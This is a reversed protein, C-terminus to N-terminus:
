GLGRWFLWAGLGATAALFVVLALWWKRYNALERDLGTTKGLQQAELDELIARAERLHPDLSMRFSLYVILVTAVNTGVFVLPKNIAYHGDTGDIFSNLAFSFAATSFAMLWLWVTTNTRYFSLRQRLGVKLSEDRRDLRRVEGHMHVGFAAFGLAALVLGGEVVLMTANSRYVVLNAGALVLTSVQIALYLWALHNLARSGRKARPELATLLATESMPQEEEQSHWLRKILEDNM